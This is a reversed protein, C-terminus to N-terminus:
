LKIKVAEPLKAQNQGLLLNNNKVRQEHRSIMLTIDPYEVPDLFMATAADFEHTPLPYVRPLYVMKNNGDIVQTLKVRWLENVYKILRQYRVPFVGIRGTFKPKESTSDATEEATEHLIITTDSPLALLRLVSNDVPIMEANWADWGGPLFVKYGSFTIERRIDKQGFLAYNQFAKGFTQISDIVNTRIITGKEVKGDYPTRIGKSNLFSLLDYMDLSTELQGLIDLFQQAAEPQMPWQREVYSLCYVGARGQLVEARNDFDHVLVVKRGTSALRSKGNKEKGVLALKIKSVPPEQDMVHLEIPM